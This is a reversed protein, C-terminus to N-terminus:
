RSITQPLITSSRGRLLPLGSASARPQTPCLVPHSATVASRLVVLFAVPGRGGSSGRRARPATAAATLTM